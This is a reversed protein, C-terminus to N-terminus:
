DERPGGTPRARRRTLIRSAARRAAPSPDGMEALGHDAAARGSPHLETTTTYTHLADAQEPDLRGELLAIRVGLSHAMDHCGAWGACIRGDIQHCLFVGVPQLGTSQDYAPLKEYEERAWIGSPVDTRYPCSGCPAAAPMPPPQDPM